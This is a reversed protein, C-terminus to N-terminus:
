KTHEYNVVAQNPLQKKARFLKKEFGAQSMSAMAGGEFECVHSDSSRKTGKTAYVISLGKSAGGIPDIMWRMGPELVQATLGKETLELQVSISADSVAYGKFTAISPYKERLSDPLVGSPEVYFSMFRGDPTPLSLVVAAASGKHAGTIVSRIEGLDLTIFRHEGSIGAYRSEDITTQLAGSDADSWYTQASAIEVSLVIAVVARTLFRCFDSLRM